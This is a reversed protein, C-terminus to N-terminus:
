GRQSELHDLLALLGTRLGEWPAEGVEERLQAELASLGQLGQLLGEMGPETFRALKARGDEPDPVLEVVGLEALEKVVPTVAQKTVGMREALVGLRTGELDLHPFLATHSPRLPFTGQAHARARTDCLRAVRFLVQLTAARKAHELRAPFSSSKTPSEQSFDNVM